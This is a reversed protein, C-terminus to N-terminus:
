KSARRQKKLEAHSLDFDILSPLNILEKMSKSRIKKLVESRHNVSLNGQGSGLVRHKLTKYLQSSSYTKRM